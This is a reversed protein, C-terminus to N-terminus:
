GKTAATPSLAAALEKATIPNREVYDRIAEELDSIRGLVAWDFSEKDDEKIHVAVNLQAELQAVRETLATITDRPIYVCPAMKQGCNICIGGTDSVTECVYCVYLKIETM